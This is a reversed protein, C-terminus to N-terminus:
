EGLTLAKGSTSSLGASARSEQTLLNSSFGSFRQRRKREQEGADFASQPDEAVAPGSSVKPTKVFCM